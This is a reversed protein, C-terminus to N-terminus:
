DELIMGKKMKKKPKIKIQEIIEIEKKVPKIYLPLEKAIGDNVLIPKNLMNSQKNKINPIKIEPVYKNLIEFDEDVWHTKIIQMADATGYCLM